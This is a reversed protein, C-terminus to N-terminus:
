RITTGVETSPAVAEVIVMTREDGAQQPIEFDQIIQEAEKACAYSEDILGFFQRTVERWSDGSNHANEAFLLRGEDPPEVLAAIPATRAAASRINSTPFLLSPAVSIWPKGDTELQKCVGRRGAQPQLRYHVVPARVWSPLKPGPHMDQLVVDVTHVGSDSQGLSLVQLAQSTAAAIGRAGKQSLSFLTVNAALACGAALLLGLPVAALAAASWALVPAYEPMNPGLIRVLMGLVVAARALVTAANDFNHVYPQMLISLSCFAAAVTLAAAHAAVVTASKQDSLYPLLGVWIGLLVKLAMDASWQWPWRVGWHFCAMLRGGTTPGVLQAAATRLSVVELFNELQCLVRAPVVCDMWPLCRVGAVATFGARSVTYTFKTKVSVPNEALVSSCSGCAITMMSKGAVSHSDRSGEIGKAAMEADSVSKYIGDLTSKSSALRRPLQQKLATKLEDPQEDEDEDGELPAKRKQWPGSEWEGCWDWNSADILPGGIHEMPHITAVIPAYRWSPATPWDLLLTSRKMGVPMARLQDCIRDVFIPEAIEDEERANPSPMKTSIVREDKVANSVHWQVLVTVVALASLVLLSPVSNL